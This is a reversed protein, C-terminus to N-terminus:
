HPHEVLEFTVGLNQAPPLALRDPASGPALHISHASLHARAQDLDRVGLVTSHLGEGHRELLRRVEGPGTPAMVDLAMDAIRLTVARGGLGPLDQEDAIEGDLLDRFFAVAGDHDATLHTLGHLGTLGLPHEDRWHSRPQLPGGTLEPEDHFSRGFFELAVGHCDAPHVHCATGLERLIRIRREALVERVEAMDAQLEVGLHHPGYRSGLFPDHPVFLEFIVHGVDILCAHWADKPLDVLFRAGFVDGLHAVSADFDELVVNVHNVRVPRITSPV